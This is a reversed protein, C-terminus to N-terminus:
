YNTEKIPTASKIKGMNSTSFVWLKDPMSQLIQENELRKKKKM